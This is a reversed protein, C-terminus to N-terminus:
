GLKQHPVHLSEARELKWGLAGWVGTEAEGARPRTMQRAVPDCSAIPNLSCYYYTALAGKRWWKMNATNWFLGEKRGVSRRCIIIV